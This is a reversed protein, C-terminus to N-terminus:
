CRTYDIGMQFVRKINTYILIDNGIEVIHFHKKNNKEWGRTFFHFMGWKPLRISSLHYRHTPNLLLSLYVTTVLPMLKLQNLHESQWLLTITQYSSVFDSNFTCTLLESKSRFVVEIILLQLYISRLFFNRCFNSPTTELNEISFIKFVQSPVHEEFSFNFM